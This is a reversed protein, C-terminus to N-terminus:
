RVVIYVLESSSGAHLLPHQHLWIGPDLVAFQVLIDCGTLRGCDTMQGVADVAKVTSKFCELCAPTKTRALLSPYKAKM